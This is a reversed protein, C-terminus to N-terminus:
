GPPAQIGPPLVDTGEPDRIWTGSHSGRLFRFGTPREKREGSRWLREELVELVYERVAVPELGLRDALRREVARGEDSIV